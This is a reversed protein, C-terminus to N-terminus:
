GERPPKRKVAALLCAFHEAQYARPERGVVRWVVTPSPKVQRASRFRERLGALEAEPNELAQECRGCRLMAAPPEEPPLIPGACAEHYPLAALRPDKPHWPDWLVAQGAAFPEGCGECPTEELSPVEGGLM